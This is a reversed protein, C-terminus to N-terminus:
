PLQRPKSKDLLKAARTTHFSIQDADPLALRRRWSAAVPGIVADYWGGHAGKGHTGGTVRCHHVLSWYDDADVSGRVFWLSDLGALANRDVDFCIVAPLNGPYRHMLQWAWARAQREVTTTYFGRGFDTFARGAHPNVGALIAAVSRGLTGHYLALAQNTWPPPLAVAAPAAPRRKGM